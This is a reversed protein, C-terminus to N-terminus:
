EDKLIFKIKSDEFFKVFLDFYNKAEDKNYSAVSIVVARKDGNIQPLSSVDIGQPIKKM